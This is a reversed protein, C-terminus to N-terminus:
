QGGGNSRQAAAYVHFVRVGGRRGYADLLRVGRERVEAKHPPVAPAATLRAVAIRQAEGRTPASAVAAPWEEGRGGVHVTYPTSM